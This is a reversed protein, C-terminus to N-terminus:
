SDPKGSLEKLASIGKKRQAHVMEIEKRLRQLREEDFEALAKEALRKEKLKMKQLLTKMEERHEKRERSDADLFEELKRVLKKLKM